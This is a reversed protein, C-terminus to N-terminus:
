ASANLLRHARSPAEYIVRVGRVLPSRSLGASVLPGNAVQAVEALRLSMMEAALRAITDRRYDGVNAAEPAAQPRAISVSQGTAERDSTIM